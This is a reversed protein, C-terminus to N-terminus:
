AKNQLFSNEQDAFLYFKTKYLLGFSLKIEEGRKDRFAGAM